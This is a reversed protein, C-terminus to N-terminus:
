VKTQQQQQERKVSLQVLYPAAHYGVAAGDDTLGLPQLREEVLGANVRRLRLDQLHDMAGPLAFQHLYRLLLLALRLLLIGHHQRDGRSRCGLRGGDIATPRGIRLRRPGLILDVSAASELLAVVQRESFEAEEGVLQAFAVFSLLCNNLSFTFHGKRKNKFNNTAPRHHSSATQLAPVHNM